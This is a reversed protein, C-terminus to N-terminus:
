LYKGKGKVFNVLPTYKVVNNCPISIVSTTGSNINAKCKQTLRNRVNSRVINAFNQKKLSNSAYIKNNKESDHKIANQKVAIKDCDSTICEDGIQYQNIFGRGIIIDPNFPEISLLKPINNFGIIGQIMKRSLNSGNQAPVFAVNTNTGNNSSGSGRYLEIAKSLTDITDDRRIEINNNPYRFRPDIDNYPDHYIFVCDVNAFDSSSSTKVLNDIVLSYFNLLSYGNAYYELISNNTLELYRLDLVIDLYNSVNFFKNYNFRFDYGDDAKIPILNQLLLNINTLKISEPININRFKINLGLDIAENSLSYIDNTINNIRALNRFSNKLYNNSLTNFYKTFALNIVKSTSFEINNYIISNFKILNNINHSNSSADAYSLSIDLLYNKYLNPTLYSFNTTINNTNINKQFKIISKNSYNYVHTHNYIDRQTIGTTQNGLGLFIINSFDIGINKTVNNFSIDRSYLNSNLDLTKVNDIYINKSGFIIKSYSKSNQLINFNNTKILFTSIINNYLNLIPNNSSTTDNEDFQYDIKFEYYNIHKYDLTLKNYSWINHYISYNVTNDLTNLKNLSSDQQISGFTDNKDVLLKNFNNLNFNINTSIDISTNIFNFENSINTIYYGINNYCIDSDSTLLNLRVIENNYKYLYDKLNIKYIDSNSIYYNLHYIYRTLNSASFNINYPRNNEFVTSNLNNFLYNYTNDNINLNKVFLIKGNVNNFSDFIFKMNNKINNKTILSCSIYTSDGTRNIRGSLIIRNKYNNSSNRLITKWIDDTNNYNLDTIKEKIYILNGVNYNNIMNKTLIIYNNKTTPITTM